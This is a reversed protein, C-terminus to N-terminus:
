DIGVSYCEAISFGGILSRDRVTVFYMFAISYKGATCVAFVLQLSDFFLFMILLSLSAGLPLFIAQYSDLTSVDAFRFDHCPM